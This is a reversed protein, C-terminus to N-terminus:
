KKSLKNIVWEAFEDQIKNAVDVDLNLGGAGTLHGWGRVVLLVEGNLLIEPARYEYNQSSSPALKGNLIDALKDILSCGYDSVNMLAMVNNSSWIYIGDSKFPPKYIELAKM